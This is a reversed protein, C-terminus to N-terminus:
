ERVGYVWHLIDEALQRASAMLAKDAIKESSLTVDYDISADDEEPGLFIRLQIRTM